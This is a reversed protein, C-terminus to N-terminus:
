ERVYYIVRNLLISRDILRSRWGRDKRGQCTDLIHEQWHRLEKEIGGYRTVLGVRRAYLVQLYVSFCTSWDSRNFYCCDILLYDRNIYSILLSTYLFCM